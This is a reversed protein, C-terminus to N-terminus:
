VFEDGEDDAQKRAQAAALITAIREAAAGTDAIQLPKGDANGLDVTEKRKFREPAYNCLLFELLRDSGHMARREAEKVLHEVGIKRMDDYQKAFEPDNKKWRWATWRSVGAITAADVDTCGTARIMDLFLAKRDAEPTDTDPPPAPDKQAM